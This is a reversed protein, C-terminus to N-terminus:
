TKLFIVEIEIQGLQRFFHIHHICYKKKIQRYQRSLYLETKLIVETEIQGLTQTLSYSSYLIKIQSYQRSLYFKTKITQILSYSSYLM